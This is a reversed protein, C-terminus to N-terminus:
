NNYQQESKNNYTYPLIISRCLKIKGFDVILKRFNVISLIQTKIRVPHHRIAM